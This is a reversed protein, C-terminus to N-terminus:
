HRILEEIHGVAAVIEAVDAVMVCGQALHKQASDSSDVPFFGYHEVDSVGACLALLVEADAAWAFYRLPWV